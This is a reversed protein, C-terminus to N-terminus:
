EHLRGPNSIRGPSPRQEKDVYGGVPVLNPEDPLAANMLHKLFYNQQVRRFYPDWMIAHHVGPMILMDFQKGAKIFADAMRMTGAPHANDDMEGHALLLRGKLQSAHKGAFVKDYDVEGALGHYTESWKAINIRNEHNGASAVGVKYFDPFQTLAQGTAFGGGSTGFIGVRDLDLYPRDKALQKLAFVHDELSGATEMHHYSLDRFPKSRGMNGRGDFLFVIFGLDALAQADGFIAPGFIASGFTAGSFSGPMRMTQPGPYIHEVVPYSKAPDFNAPKLLVGHLDWKGDASKVTFSEPMTFPPLPSADERALEAIKRGNAARLVWTALADVGGMRDIFCKGGPAFSPVGESEGGALNPPALFFVHMGPEPTLLEVGSGDLRARYAKVSYVNDGAERGSGTFYLYGGEEDVHLVDRALWEGTTIASKLAGSKGDYLYFHGWGSRESFWIVDGNRLTRTTPPVQWSWSPLISGHVSEEILVRASGSKGDAQVLRIHKGRTSIDILYVRDGAPDWWVRSHHMASVLSASIPRYEIPTSKGTEIDYIFHETFAGREGVIDYRYSHLRPRFSGDDPVAQLLFMEEVHREDLRHYVFRKGDPSWALAPFLNVGMRRLYIAVACSEPMCGYGYHAIGDTTVAKENGDPGRIWLNHDRLRVEFGGRPARSPMPDSQDAAEQKKAERNALDCVVTKGASTLTYIDGSIRTIGNVPLRKPDVEKELVRSLLEAMVAHDFLPETRGSETDLRRFETRKADEHKYALARGEDIWYHAIDGNCTDKATGLLFRDSRKFDDHTIKM